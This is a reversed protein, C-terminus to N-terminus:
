SAFERSVKKLKYCKGCPQDPCSNDLMGEEILKEIIVTYFVKQKRTLEYNNLYSKSIDQLARRQYTNLLNSDYARNSLHGGADGLEQIVKEPDMKLRRPESQIEDREAAAKLRIFAQDIVYIDDLFGKEAIFDPIIDWPDILYELAALIIQQSKEESVTSIKEILDRGRELGEKISEQYDRSLHEDLYAKADSLTEKKNELSSNNILREFSRDIDDKLESTLSM